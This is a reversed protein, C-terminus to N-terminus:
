RYHNARNNVLNGLEQSLHEHPQELLHFDKIFKRMRSAESRGTEASAIMKLINQKGGLAEIGKSQIFHQLARTNKLNIVQVTNDAKPISNYHSVWLDVLGIYVQESYLKNLTLSPLKLRSAPHKLLRLEYRLLYHDQGLFPLEEKKYKTERLKDYFAMARTQNSFSLSSHREIRDFYPTDLLNPYYTAPPHKVRLNDGVDVRRVTAQRLPLCLEDELKEVAKQIGKRSLTRINDNLLFKSLSGQVSCSRDTVRVRMNGIHGTIAFLGTESSLHESQGSLKLAAQKIQKSSVSFSDPLYLHVTDLM